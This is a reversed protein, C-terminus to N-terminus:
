VYGGSFFYVFVLVAMALITIPLGVVLYTDLYRDVYADINFLELGALHAMEPCWLAVNRGVALFSFLDLGCALMAGEFM